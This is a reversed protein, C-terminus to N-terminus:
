VRRSGKSGEELVMHKSEIVGRERLRERKHRYIEEDECGAVVVM